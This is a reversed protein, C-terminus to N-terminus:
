GSSCTLLNEDVWDKFSDNADEIRIKIITPAEYSHKALIFEKVAEWNDAGTVLFIGFEREKYTKHKWVYVATHKRINACVIKKSEILAEAVAEAEKKASFSTYVLIYDKNKNTM